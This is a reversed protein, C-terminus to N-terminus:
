LLSELDEEVDEAAIEPGEADDGASGKALSRFAAELSIEWDAGREWVFQKLEDRTAQRRKGELTKDIVAAIQKRQEDSVEVTEYINVKM